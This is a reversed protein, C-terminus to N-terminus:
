GKWRAAQTGGEEPKEPRLEAAATVTFDAGAPTFETLLRAPTGELELDSRDTTGTAFLFLRGIGEVLVASETVRVAPSQRDATINVETARVMFGATPLEVAARFRHLPIVLRSTEHPILYLAADASWRFTTRVRLQTNRYFSLAAELIEIQPLEARPTFLRVLDLRTASRPKTEGPELWPTELRGGSAGIVFPARGTEIKAVTGPRGDELVLRQVLWAPALGDFLSAAGLLASEVAAPALGPFIWLLDQGRAWNAHGALRRAMAAAPRPLAPLVTCWSEPACGAQHTAWARLAHFEVDRAHRLLM